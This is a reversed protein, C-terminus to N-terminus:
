GGGRDRGGEEWNGLRGGRGEGGRWSADTLLVLPAGRLEDRVEALALLHVRQLLRAAEEVVGAFLLCLLLHWQPSHSPLTM